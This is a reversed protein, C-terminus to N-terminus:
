KKPAPMKGGCEHCFTLGEEVKAKCKKNPCTILTKAAPAESLQLTGCKTCFKSKLTLNSNCGDKLCVTPILSVVNNIAKDLAKGVSSNTFEKTGVIPKGYENTIVFQTSSAEGSCEATKIIAGTRANVLKFTLKITTSQSQIFIIDTKTVKIYTIKGLIYLDAKKLQGLKSFDNSDYLGSEENAQDVITQDVDVKDLLAYRGTIVKSLENNIMDPIHFGLQWNAYDSKDQFPLVAITLLKKDNNEPTVIPGNLAKGLKDLFYAGAKAGAKKLASKGAILETIEVAVDQADTIALIRADERSIARVEVRSKCSFLKDNTRGASESFAEGIILVDAGYKAMFVRAEASMPNKLITTVDESNRQAAYLGQDVVHYGNEVLQKIIETEAAPDVVPRTIHYEPVLVMIKVNPYKLEANACLALCLVLLFMTTKTM